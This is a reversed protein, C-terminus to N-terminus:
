FCPVCWHQSICDMLTPTQWFVYKIIGSNQFTMLAPYFMIAQFRRDRAQKASGGASDGEVFFLERREQDVSSCDSLKAPLTTGNSARKKTVKNSKKVRNKANEIAFNALM